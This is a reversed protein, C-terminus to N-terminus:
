FVKEFAIGFKGSPDNNFSTFADGGAPNFLLIMIAMAAPIMLAVAAMATAPKPPPSPRFHPRNPNPFSSSHPM